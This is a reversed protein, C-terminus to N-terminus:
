PCPWGVRFSRLQGGVKERRKKSNQASGKAPAEKYCEFPIWRVVKKKRKTRSSPWNESSCLYPKHGCSVFFYFWFLAATLRKQFQVLFCICTLIVALEFNSLVAQSFGLIQTGWRLIKFSYSYLTQISPMDRSPWHIVLHDHSYWDNRWAELFIWVSKSRFAASLIQVETCLFSM